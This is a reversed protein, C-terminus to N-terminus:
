FCSCCVTGPARHDLQRHQLLHLDPHDAPRRDGVPILNKKLVLFELFTVKNDRMVVLVSYLTRLGYAHRPRVGTSAQM